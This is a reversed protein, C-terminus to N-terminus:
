PMVHTTTRAMAKQWMMSDCSDENWNIGAMGLRGGDERDVM